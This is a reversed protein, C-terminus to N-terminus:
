APPRTLRAAAALGTALGGLRARTVEPDPPRNPDDELGLLEAPGVARGSLLLDGPHRRPLVVDPQAPAGAGDPAVAHPAAGVTPLSPAAAAPVAPSVPAARAAAAPSVPAARAAAASGIAVPSTPAIGVPGSAPSVPAPMPALIGLPLAVLAATGGGPVSRLEVEIRHRQALRAVVLLGMTGALEATLRTPRALRANLETVREAPMGIGEDFITITVNDIARRATVRVRTHPPAFGTANELLEALLHVVDRVVRAAIAVEAVGAADVRHYDEIEAAAARIVDILALPALIRAGVEGGALVLLNEENRRMRTALHGLAFLRQLAAPDTELDEFEGIMQLQRAILTQGRRSLAMFLGAVDQRLSAQDAALRLAQRHVTSLAAGVEGIEDGGAVSLGDSRAAAAQLVARIGAQDPADTLETIASPLEFGAVRLATRRLRRLRRATRVAFLLASGFALLILAATAIGTFTARNAANARQDRAAQDLSYSLEFQVQHLRRILNSQAIYWGDPDAHLASPEPNPQLAATRISLATNVDSGVFDRAYVARQEPTADRNFEALREDQAGVLRDLEAQQGPAFAGHVLVLHLLERQEGAYHEARAIAAVARSTAALRADTLTSPLADAVSLVAHRVDDYFDSGSEAPGLRAVQARLTDLTGLQALAVDLVGGLAPSLRRTNGAATGFDRVARDTQEIAGTLLASAQGNRARLRDGEAIEQEILNNLRLATLATAAVSQGRQADVAARVATQTQAAGLAVLGLTALVIPLM